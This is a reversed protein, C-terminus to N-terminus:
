SLTKGSVQPFINLKRVVDIFEEYTQCKLFDHVISRHNLVHGVLKYMKQLHSPNNKEVCLLCIFQVKKNEWEIPKQLTCVAWFTQLSKATMSRPIAILNGFYTPAIAEREFVSATLDEEVLGLKFAKECLFQLIESKSQFTKQLFILQKRTYKEVLELKANLVHNIKLVDIEELITNVKIVPIPLKEPLPITSIIFDLANLSIQKLRYYNVTGLIQLKAGFTSRLKSEIWIANGAGSVCVIICRKSMINTKRREIAAGIHLALYGAESEEIDFGTEKKLVEGAQIGAEFALPDHTKITDLLPNRIHMGYRYRNLAPKLHLSIGSKLQKDKKIGLKFQHDITEILLDALRGTEDDIFDNMDDHNVKTRKAGLLHIAMYATEETPFKVKLNKELNQAISCAVRYEQDNMMEKVDAEYLSVHKGNRIRKCAIVIHVLLNSLALDSLFMQQDMINELITERIMNLEAKPLIPVRTDIIEFDIEQKQFIHEAMCYRLKMEEGRLKFGYNPKIVLQIGYPKLRKRIERMDHQVTSKSVYLDDALNELKVYEDTLLLRKFLYLIRENPFVPHKLGGQFMHQLFQQFRANNEISLQYGVGRISQIFAGDRYLFQNLEKVDSRITRSTVNLQNAFYHSTLPTDVAMLEGLIFKFRNNMM